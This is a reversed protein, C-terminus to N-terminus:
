WRVSAGPLTALVRPWARDHDVRRPKMAIQDFGDGPRAGERDSRAFPLEDNEVFPPRMVALMMGTGLSRVLPTIIARGDEAIEQDPGGGLVLVVAGMGRQVLALELSEDGTAPAHQRRQRSLTM